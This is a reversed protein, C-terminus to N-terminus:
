SREDAHEEEETVEVCLAKLINEATERVSKIPTQLWGILEGVDNSARHFNLLLRSKQDDATLVINVVGEGFRAARSITRATVQLGKDAVAADLDSTVLRLVPEPVEDAEYGINFGVAEVPTKPLWELAKVGAQMGYQLSEYTPALVDIRLKGSAGSVAIQENPHKVTFPSVGDMPVEVQLDKKDQLDFINEAIEGPSLIARNWRGPIIVNWDCPRFPM